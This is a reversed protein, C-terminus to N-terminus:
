NFERCYAAITSTSSAMWVHMGPRLFLIETEGPDIKGIKATSTPVLTKNGHCLDYYIINTGDPNHIMIGMRDTLPKTVAAEIGTTPVTIVTGLQTVDEMSVNSIRQFDRVM